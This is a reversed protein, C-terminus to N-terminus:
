SLSSIVAGHEHRPAARFGALPLALLPGATRGSGHKTKGVVWARTPTGSL